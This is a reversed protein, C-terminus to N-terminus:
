KISFVDNGNLVIKKMAMMNGMIYNGDVNFDYKYPNRYWENINMEMTLPTNSGSTINIPKLLKIPILCSDTGLHMAYGYTASLDKYSGEMKMVHYGGGMMDPWQMNINETTAPLQFSKNQLPDLGINFKIGIYNGVPIGKISLKNTATTFADIYQYEKLLVLSSDAKMLSIKSLYYVLSSLSYTNGAQNQYNFSNLVLAANDVTYTINLDVSQDPIIVPPKEHGDKTCSVFFLFPSILVLLYKM